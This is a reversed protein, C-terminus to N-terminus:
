KPRLNMRWGANFKRGKPQIIELTLRSRGALEGGRHLGDYERPARGEHGITRTLLSDFDARGTRSCV